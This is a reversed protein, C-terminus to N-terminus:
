LSQRYRRKDIKCVQMIRKNNKKMFNNYHYRYSYNYMSCHISIICLVFGSLSACQLRICNGAIHLASRGNNSLDDICEPTHTLLLNVVNEDGARCAILLPTWGDKNRLRVNAKATLLSVVCQFAAHGSKTCALMLPTWDGRKLADVSAGKVSM